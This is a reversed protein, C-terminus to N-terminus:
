EGPVGYLNRKLWQRHLLKDNYLKARWERQGGIGVFADFISGIDIMPQKIKGHLQTIMLASSLGAAFLFVADENGIGDAEELVRRVTNAIGDIDLHFDPTTVPIHLYDPFIDLASFAPNGILIVRRDQLANIFPFLQANEAPIDLVQDRDVFRVQDLHERELFFRLMDSDFIHVLERPAAAFFSQGSDCEVVRKLGATLRDGTEADILMGFGTRDGIRRTKMMCHWAADGYGCFTFQRGTKIGTVLDTIKWTLFKM